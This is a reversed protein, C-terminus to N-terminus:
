KRNNISYIRFKKHHQIKIINAAILKKIHWTTTSSSVNLFKTIQGHSAPQNQMLFEIIKQRTKLHLVEKSDINNDSDHYFYKYFKTKKSKIKGEKELHKLHHQITGMSYGVDKKIKRLHTSPNSIIYDLIEQKPQKNM